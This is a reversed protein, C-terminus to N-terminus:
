GDSVEMRAEPVQKTAEDELHEGGRYMANRPDQMTRAFLTGITSGV